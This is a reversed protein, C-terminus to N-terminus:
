LQGCNAIVVKSSTKGGASGYSEMQKVVDLGQVVRGFVVHKGDLRHACLAGDPCLSVFLRFVGFQGRVKLKFVM